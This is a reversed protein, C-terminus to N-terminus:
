LAALRVVSRSARSSPFRCTVITGGGPRGAIELTGGHLQMLGKSIPLGLGAGGRARALISEVQEFPQLVRALDDRSIGVGTDAVTLALSGDDDLRASVLVHGGSPTFKVANTLLNTLIQMVARRDADLKPLNAPIKAEITLGVKTASTSVMGIAAAVLADLDVEEPRIRFKGSEIRSIDLLDNVLALLHRGSALIDGAYARYRDSAQPGFAQSHVLEAFGIIANLPTRLEHSMQALFSSKAANATEAQQLAEVLRIRSLQQETVDTASGRHGLFTGAPGLVPIGSVRFWRRGTPTDADYEFDRFARHGGLDEAHRKWLSVSMDACALEFRTRGIMPGTGVKPVTSTKSSFWTFRHHADTEWFWDASAEAFDRFRAESEALRRRAQRGQEIHRIVLFAMLGVLVAVVVGLWRLAALEPPMFGGELNPLISLQWYGGPLSVDFTVAKPEYFQGLLGYFVSGGAGEGDTGRMAVYHSREIDSIGLKSLLSDVDVVVSVVGLFEGSGPPESPPSRFVPTRGILAFGGQVLPVPGSLVSSRTSIALDVAPWQEPISRYDVGIAAENGARPYVGAIVTGRSFGLHRVHRAGVLLDQAFADFEALTLNPNTAFQAALGKQLLITATLDQEIQARLLGGVRWAEARALEEHRRNIVSDLVYVLTLTTVVGVFAALLVRRSVWGFERRNTM